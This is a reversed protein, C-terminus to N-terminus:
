VAELVPGPDNDIIDGVGGKEWAELKRGIPHGRHNHPDKQHVAEKIVEGLILHRADPDPGEALNPFNTAARAVQRLVIKAKVKAQSFLLSGVEINSPGAPLDFFEIINFHVGKHFENLPLSTQLADSASLWIEPGM